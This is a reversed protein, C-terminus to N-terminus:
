TNYKLNKTQLSNWPSFIVSLIYFKVNEKLVQVIAAPSAALFLEPTQVPQYTRWGLNAALSTDAWIVKHSNDCSPYM